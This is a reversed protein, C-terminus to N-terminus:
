DIYSCQVAHGLWYHLMVERGEEWWGVLVLVVPLVGVM